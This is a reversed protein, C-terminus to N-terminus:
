WTLSVADCGTVIGPYLAILLEDAEFELAGSAVCLPLSPGGAARCGQHLRSRTAQTEPEVDPRECSANDRNVGM